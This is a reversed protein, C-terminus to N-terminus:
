RHDSIDRRNATFKRITSFTAM